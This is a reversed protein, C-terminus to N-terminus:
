IFQPVYVSHSTITAIKLAPSMPLSLGAFSIAAITRPIYIHNCHYNNKITIFYIKPPSSSVFERLINNYLKVESELESRYTLM